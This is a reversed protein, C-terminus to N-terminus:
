YLVQNEGKESIMRQFQAVIKDRRAMVGEVESKTLYSKTKASLESATLANLKEWLHKECHVLDRPDAIDKSLRFARTFDVRWIQWNEGILMNTLNPDSDAVLVDFVRVKYIQYNWADSDPPSLNQKRRDADDMKVPLWWSLSGPNGQWMREVYVPLLDDLGLLQALEYAALNYKYSDVFQTETGTAFRQSAKHEDISQFSADHTVTGDSLTFRHTHTIGKKADHVNVIKATLLFHKIQETTLTQEDAPIAFLQYPLCLLAVLLLSRFCHRVLTM